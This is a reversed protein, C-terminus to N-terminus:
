AHDMEQILKTELLYPLCEPGRVRVQSLMAVHDLSLDFFQLIKEVTMEPQLILEEFSTILMPGLRALLTLTKPRDREYLKALKKAADADMILHPALVGMFKVSSKGQEVPNRDIWIIQYPLGDPPTFIRPDLIKVCRGYAGKLWKHNQPLEQSLYTEYAPYESGPGYAPMGGAVLMQMVLSSGCRGFGCVLTIPKKKNVPM